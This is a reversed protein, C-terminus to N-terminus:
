SGGRAIWAHRLIGGSFSLTTYHPNDYPINVGIGIHVQTSMYLQM